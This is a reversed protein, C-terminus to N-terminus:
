GGVVPPQDQKLANMVKRMAVDVMANLWLAALHSKCYNTHINAILAVCISIACAVVISMKPLLSLREDGADEVPHM